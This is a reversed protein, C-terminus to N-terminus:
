MWGEFDGEEEYRESGDYEHLRVRGSVTAVTLGDLGGMYPVEGFKELCERAFQVIVPHCADFVYAGLVIGVPPQADRVITPEVRIGPENREIADILPAYELMFKALDRNSQWTTWGAGFGPSYLIKRTKM